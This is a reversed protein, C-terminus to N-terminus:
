GWLIMFADLFGLSFTLAGASVDKEVEDMLAEISSHPVM